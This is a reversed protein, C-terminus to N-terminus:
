AWETQAWTKGQEIIAAKVSRMYAGIARRSGEAAGHNMALTRKSKCIDYHPFSIKPDTPNQYHKRAVGIKDAMADLEARTDALMHCMIMRGFGHVPADVYVTM